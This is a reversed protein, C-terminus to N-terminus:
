EGGGGRMCERRGEWASGGGGGMCERRGREYVERRGRREHVLGVEVYSSPFWGEMNDYSGYWWGNSNAWYVLLTDGEKFSLDGNVSSQHAYIAKYEIHTLTHMMQFPM